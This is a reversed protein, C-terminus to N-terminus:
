FVRPVVSIDLIRFQDYIARSTCPAAKSAGKCDLTCDGRNEYLKAVHQLLAVRLSTPIDTEADGFGSKFQIRISQPLDDKDDPWDQDPLRFIFPFDNETTVGFLSAAVTIFVDNVLYDFGEISQFPSRRLQFQPEFENRFTEWIRTIFDRKTYIEAFETVAGIMLDIITDQATDTIRLYEKATSRSIPTTAPPSIVVYPFAATNGKQIAVDSAWVNSGLFSM